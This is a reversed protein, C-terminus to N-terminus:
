SRYYTPHLSLAKHIVFDLHEIEKPLPSTIDHKLLTLAPDNSLGILWDPVGRIYNDCVTLRIASKSDHSRNWHLVAQILYYGLFGAGGSILLRRGQMAGFEAELRSCIYDLDAVVVQRTNTTNLQLSSTFATDNVQKAAPMLSAFTTGSREAIDLLTNTGDSLNLIWLMAMVEEHLSSYIGRKSLQPEGKPSLNLYRHNHELVEIIQVLKTFSAGLAEPTIFDLNDASTHYEPFEGHPTRMFCGVPLNHKPLVINDSM